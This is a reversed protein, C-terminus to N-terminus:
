RDASSIRTPRRKLAHKFMYVLWGIGGTLLILLLWTLKDNEGPFSRLYLDRITLALAVFNLLMGLLHFPMILLFRDGILGSGVIYLSIPVYIAMYLLAGLVFYREIRQM